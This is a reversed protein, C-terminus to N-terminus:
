KPNPTFSFLGSHTGVMAADPSDRKEKLVIQTGIFLTQFVKNKFKLSYSADHQHLEYAPDVQLQVQASGQFAVPKLKGTIEYNSRFYEAKSQDGPDPGVVDPDRTDILTLAGVWREALAGGQSDVALQMDVEIRDHCYVGKEACAVGPSCDVFESEVFRVQGQEYSVTVNGQVGSLSPTVKATFPLQAYSPSGGQWLGPYIGSVEQVLTRLNLEGVAADLGALVQPRDRCYPVTVSEKSGAGPTSPNPMTATSTGANPTQGSPDCASALIFLAPSLRTLHPPPMSALDYCSTNEWFRSSGPEISYRELM